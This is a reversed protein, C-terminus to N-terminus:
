VFCPSVRIVLFSLPVGIPVRSFCCALLLKVLAGGVIMAPEVAPEEKMKALVQQRTLGSLTNIRIGTAAPRAASEYFRGLRAGPYQAEELFWRHTEPPFQGPPVATCGGRRSGMKLM